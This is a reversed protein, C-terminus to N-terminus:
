SIKDEISGKPKPKSNSKSEISKGLDALKPDLQSYYLNNAKLTPSRM